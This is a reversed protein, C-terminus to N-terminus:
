TLLARLLIRPSRLLATTKITKVQGGIELDELGKVLGKPITRHVGIVIPIVKNKMNWLKRLKKLERDLDLYTDRKGSGKLKVRYEVPVDFDARRYTRKKKNNHPRRATILHDTQIDFDWLLKQTDNESVSEPNHM